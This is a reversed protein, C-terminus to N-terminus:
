DSLLTNKELGNKALQELETKNGRAFNELTQPSFKGSPAKPTVESVKTLTEVAPKAVPAPRAFLM